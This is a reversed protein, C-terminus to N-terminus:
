GTFLYIDIVKNEQLEIVLWDPDLVLFGPPHGLYYLMRTPEEEEPTGLREIVAERELGILSSGLQLDNVFLYRHEPDSKWTAERFNLHPHYSILFSWFLFGIVAALPASLIAAVWFLPSSNPRFQPNIRRSFRYLIATFGAYIGLVLAILGAM